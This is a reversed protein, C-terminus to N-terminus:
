KARPHELGCHQPATADNCAYPRPLALLRLLLLRIYPPRLLQLRLHLLRLHLLLRLPSLGVRYGFARHFTTFQYLPAKVYYLLM